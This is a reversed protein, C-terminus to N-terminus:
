AGQSTGSAGASSLLAAGGSTITSTAKTSSNNDQKPIEFDDGFLKNLIKCQKIEDKEDLTSQLESQLKLLKNRFQMGVNLDSGDARGGDIKHQFVDRKPQKPLRVHLRYDSTRFPARIYNEELISDVTKKLAKLDDDVESSFSNPSYQEKVMVTLGISFIKKKVDENFNVDRWRKIYRILRKLQKRKSTSGLVYEDVSDIWEIM